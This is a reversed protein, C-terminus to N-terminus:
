GKSVIFSILKENKYENNKDDFELTEVCIIPIPYIDFNLSQIIEFDMGETDLSLVSPCTKFNEEIVDNIHLLKITKEELVKQKGFYESKKILDVSKKSFTNITSSSLSYYTGNGKTGIGACIVTDKPRVKQIKNCLKENPEVCVGCESESYLLYTNNIKIHHNTGIDLYSKSRTHLINNLIYNIILDEGLQSYSKKYNPNSKKFIKILDHIKMTIDYIM